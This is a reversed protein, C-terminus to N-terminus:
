FLQLVLDSNNYGVDVHLQQLLGFDYIRKLTVGMCTLSDFLVTPDVHIRIDTVVSPSEPSKERFHSNFSIWLYVEAAATEM